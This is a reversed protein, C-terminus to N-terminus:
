PEMAVGRFNKYDIPRTNHELQHGDDQGHWVYQQKVRDSEKMSGQISLEDIDVASANQANVEKYMNWAMQEVNIYSVQDSHADFRDALNEVRMLIQNKNYPMIRINGQEAFRSNSANLSLNKIEIVGNSEAGMDLQMIGQSANQPLSKTQEYDFM